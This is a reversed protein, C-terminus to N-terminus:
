AFRPDNRMPRFRGDWGVHVLATCRERVANQLWEFTAGPDGLGAFVAAIEYAPVYVTRSREVLEHVAYEAETKKGLLAWAHARAAVAISLEGSQTIAADFEAVAEAFKGQREFVWGRVMPSWFLNPAMQEARDADALAGEYD